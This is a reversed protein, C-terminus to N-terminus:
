WVEVVTGFLCVRGGRVEDVTGSEWIDEEGPPLPTLPELMAEEEEERPFCGIVLGGRGGLIGTGGSTDM